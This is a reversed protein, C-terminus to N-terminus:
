KRSKTGCKNALRHWHCKNAECYFESEYVSCPDKGRDTKNCRSKKAEWQCDPDDRCVIEDTKARCPVGATVSLSASALLVFATLLFLYNM